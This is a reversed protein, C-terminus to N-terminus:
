YKKSIQHKKLDLQRYQAPFCHFRLQSLPSDSKITFIKFALYLVTLFCPSSVCLFKTSSLELPSFFKELSLFLLIICPQKLRILVLVKQCHSLVSLHFSLYGILWGPFETQCVLLSLNHERIRVQQMSNNLMLMRIYQVLCGTESTQRLEQQVQM